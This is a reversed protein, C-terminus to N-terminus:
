KRAPGKFSNRLILSNTATTAVPTNSNYSPLITRRAWGLVLKRRCGLFLYGEKELIVRRGVSRSRPRLFLFSTPTRSSVSTIRTSNVADPMSRQVQSDSTRQPIRHELARLGVGIEQQLFLGEPPSLQFARARMDVHM